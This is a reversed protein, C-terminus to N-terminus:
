KLRIIGQDADLEITDGTKLAQTAIKTGIVCPKKMERAVIAAHCTIGGEDTIFGAARHMAPLYDPTTMATVLIEGAKLTSIESKSHLVRVKGRVTGKMATQGRLERIGEPVVDEKIFIDNRKALEEVSTTTYLEFKFYIYHQKRTELVERTQLTNSRLEEISIYKVLDGLGPYLKTLTALVVHDTADLFDASRTRLEMGLDQYKQDIHEVEPLTYTVSVGVWTQAMVNFFAVLEERSDFSGKKWVAELEDVQKAYSTVLSEIVAIDKKAKELILNQWIAWINEHFYVRSVGGYTDFISIPAPEGLYNPLLNVQHEEWVQISFLTNERTYAKFYTTM